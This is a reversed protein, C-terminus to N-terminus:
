EECERLIKWNGKYKENKECKNLIELDKQLENFALQLNDIQKKLKFNWYHAEVYYDQINQNYRLEIFIRQDCYLKMYYNPCYFEYGLEILKEELRSM